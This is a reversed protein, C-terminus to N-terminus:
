ILSRTFSIRLQFFYISRLFRRAPGIPEAWKIKPEFV